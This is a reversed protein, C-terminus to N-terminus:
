VSGFTLSLLVTIALPVTRMVIQVEKV